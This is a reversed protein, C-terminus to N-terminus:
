GNVTFWLWWNAQSCMVTTVEPRWRKHVQSIGDSSCFYRYFNWVSSTDNALIPHQKQNTMRPSFKRWSILLAVVCVQIPLSVDCTHFKQARKESTIERAFRVVPKAPSTRHTRFLFCFSPWVILTDSFYHCASPSWAYIDVISEVSPTDLIFRGTKEELEGHVTFTQSDSNCLWTFTFDNQLCFCKKWM